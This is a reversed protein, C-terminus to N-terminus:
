NKNVSNPWVANPWNQKQHPGSPTPPGSSHLGSGLFLPPGFPTPARFIERKKKERGGSIENKRRERPTKEHFKPPTQLAPVSLHARKSNEPQRTFGQRCGPRTPGGPNWVVVLSGVVHMQAVGTKLFVVLLEVLCVEWLLLVSLFNRAPSLFFFLSIKPPGPSPRDPPPTDPPSAWFDQVCGGCVCVVVVLCAGFLCWWCAGVPVLCCGPVLLCCGPVVVVVLFLLLLLVQFKPWFVSFVLIPWIRNPWIRDVSQFVLEPWIRNPWIRDRFRGPWIRIKKALHPKPWIRNPWIRAHSAPRRPSGPCSSPSFLCMQPGSQGFCWWFEVLLDGSLFFFFSFPPPLLFFFRSIKPPGASPRDPPGAYPHSTRSIVCIKSRGVCCVVCCVCM